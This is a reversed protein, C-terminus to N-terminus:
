ATKEVELETNESLRLQDVWMATAGATAIPMVLFNVLPISTMVMVGGGFGLALGRRQKLRQKQQDFSLDHNGMPFDM